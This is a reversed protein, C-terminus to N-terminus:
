RPSVQGSSIEVEASLKSSNAGGGSNCIVVKDITEGAMKEASTVAAIISNEALRMDTIAGSKIGQSLQHGIGIIKLNNDPTIQAIFCVIKTTGIDLVGIIGSRSRPAM